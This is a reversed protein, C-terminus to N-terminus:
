NTAVADLQELILNARARVRADGTRQAIYSLMARVNSGSAAKAGLFSLLDNDLGMSTQGGTVLTELQQTEAGSLPHGSLASLSAAEVSPEADGVLAIMTQRAEPSSADRLALAAEARLVPESSRAFERALRMDEESRANGLAALLEKKEKTTRARQLDDRLQADYRRALEPQTKALASTISGLTHASALQVDLNGDRRAREYREAVFAATHRDPRPVFSFRQLLMPYGPDGTAARSGLAERMAKQAQPSAASALVDLVLARTRPTTDPKDFLAALKACHEPHQLLLASARGVFGQPPQAGAATVSSLTRIMEDPSLGNVRAALMKSEVDADDLTDGLQAVELGRADVTGPEFPKMEALVLSVHLTALLVPAGDVKSVRVVEDGDIKRLWGAPDIEISDSAALRQVCGDCGSDPLGTFSEYKLRERTVTSAQARTYKTTAVGVATREPLTWSDSGNRLNMAVPFLLSLVVNKFLAPDQGRFRVARVTGDPAIEAFAERGEFLRQVLAADGLVDQGLATLQHRDLRGISVGVLSAGGADGYGRLVLEGALDASGRAGESVSLHAGTSAQHSFRYTLQQGTPYAVRLSSASLSPTAAHSDASAVTQKRTHVAVALVLGATVAAAAPIILGRKM